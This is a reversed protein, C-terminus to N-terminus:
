AHSDEEPRADRIAQIALHRRLSAKDYADNLKVFAARAEDVAADAAWFERLLQAHIARTVLAPSPTDPNQWPVAVAPEGHVMTESDHEQGTM